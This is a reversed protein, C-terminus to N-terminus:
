KARGVKLEMRANKRRIDLLERQRELAARKSGWFFCIVCDFKEIRRDLDRVRKKLVM